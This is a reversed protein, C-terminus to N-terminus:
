AWTTLQNGDAGPPALMYLLVAVRKRDTILSFSTSRGALNDFASFVCALM